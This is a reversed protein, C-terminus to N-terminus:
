ELNAKRQAPNRYPAIALSEAWAAARLGVVGNVIWFTPDSECLQPSQSLFLKKCAWVRTTDHYGTNMM